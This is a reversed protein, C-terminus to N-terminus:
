PPPGLDDVEDGEPGGPITLGNETAFWMYGRSDQHVDMVTSQSLGDEPTLHEFRIPRAAHASQALLVIGCLALARFARLPNGRNKM